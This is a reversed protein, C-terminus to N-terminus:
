RIINLLAKDGYLKNAKENYAIAAEEQSSFYGLHISKYNFYIYARYKKSAKNFDVGKYIVGHTKNKNLKKNFQNEQYTVLRLNTKTNDLRNGNIHDICLNSSELENLIVRHLYRPKRVGGLFCTGIIYGTNTIKWSNQHLAAMVREYDEEDIIGVKSTNSLILDM